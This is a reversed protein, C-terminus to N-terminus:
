PVSVRVVMQLDPCIEAHLFMLDLVVGKNRRVIITCKRDHRSVLQDFIKIQVLLKIVKVSAYLGIIPFFDTKLVFTNSIKGSVWVHM